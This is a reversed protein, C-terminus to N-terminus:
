APRASREARAEAILVDFDAERLGKLACFTAKSLPSSEFAHLLQARHRRAQAEPSTDVPAPHSPRQADRRM